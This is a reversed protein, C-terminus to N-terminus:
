TSQHLQRHQQGRQPGPHGSGATATNTLTGGAFDPPWPATSTVTVAAAPPLTGLDCHLAGGPVTCAGTGTSSATFTVGAPPTDDLVVAAADSPGANGVVIQWRVQGGAVPSGSLVTKVASLDAAATM